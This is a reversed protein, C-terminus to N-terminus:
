EECCDALEADIDDLPFNWPDFFAPTDTYEFDNDM